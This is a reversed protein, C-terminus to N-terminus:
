EEGIKSTKKARLGKVSKTGKVARKKKAPERNNFMSVETIVRFTAGKAAAFANAAEWKAQNILWVLRDRENAGPQLVTEKLPKVEIIERKTIGSKDVYVVMFDPYYQHIRGDTPKKYSISFEESCWQLVSPSNDFFQMMRLEWSSRFIINSVKGVYKQPNKPTFRGRATM